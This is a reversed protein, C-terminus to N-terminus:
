LIDMPNMCGDDDNDCLAFMVISHKTSFIPLKSKIKKEVKNRSLFNLGLMLDVVDVENM